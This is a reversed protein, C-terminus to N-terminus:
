NKREQIKRKKKPFKNTRCLKRFLLFHLFPLTNFESFQRTNIMGRPTDIGFWFLFDRIM